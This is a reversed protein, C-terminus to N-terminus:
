TARIREKFYNLDTIPYFKELEETM